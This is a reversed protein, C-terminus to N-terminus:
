YYNEYDPSLNQPIREPYGNDWSWNHDHPFEHNIGGAIIIDYRRLTKKL